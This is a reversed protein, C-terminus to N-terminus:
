FTPRLQESSVESARMKGKLVRKVVTVVGVIGVQILM